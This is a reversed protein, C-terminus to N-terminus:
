GLVSSNQKKDRRIKKGTKLETTREFIQQGSVALLGNEWYKRQRGEASQRAPM